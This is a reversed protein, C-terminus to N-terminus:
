YPLSIHVIIWTLSAKQVMLQALSAKVISTLLLILVMILEQYQIILNSKNFWSVQKFKLPLQYLPKINDEMVWNKQRGHTGDYPQRGERPWCPQLLELGWIWPPSLVKRELCKLLPWMVMETGLSQSSSHPHSLAFLLDERSSHTLDDEGSTNWRDM